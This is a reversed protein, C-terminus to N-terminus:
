PLRLPPMDKEGVAKGINLLFRYEEITTPAVTDLLDGGHIGVCTTLLVPSDHTRIDIRTQSDSVPM